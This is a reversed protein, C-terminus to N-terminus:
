MMHLSYDNFDGRHPLELLHWLMCSWLSLLEDSALSIDKRGLIGGALLPKAKNQKKVVILEIWTMNLWNNWISRSNRALKSKRFWLSTCLACLKVLLQWCGERMLLLSLILRSKYGFARGVPNHLGIGLWPKWNM